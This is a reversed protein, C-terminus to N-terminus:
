RPTEGVRGATFFTWEGTPSIGVSFGLYADAAVYEALEDVTFLGADLAGQIQEESWESALNLALAPYVWLVQVTGNGFPSQRRGPTSELLQELRELLEPDAVLYEELTVDPRAFDFEFGSDALAAVQGSDGSRAAAAIAYATETVAVPVENEPPATVADSAGCAALTVSLAALLLVRVPRLVM